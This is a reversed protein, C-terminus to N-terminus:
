IGESVAHSLSILDKWGYGWHPKDMNEVLKEFRKMDEVTDVVVSEDGFAGDSEFSRIDYEDPHTYFFKTVHEREEPSGMKSYAAVFSDANVVEVSQGKPYTRKLVNTVLDGGKQRLMQVAEDVLRYDLLPSDGCIRVFADLSLEDVVMKFRWAVDELPGRICRINNEACFQGIPDDSSQDSTALVLAVDQTCRRLSEVLYGLLPKGNVEHLVKGPFRTSSMRAQVVVGVQM